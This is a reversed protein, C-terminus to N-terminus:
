ACKGRGELMCVNERKRDPVKREKIKREGERVWPDRNRMDVNERKKVKREIECLINREKKRKNM